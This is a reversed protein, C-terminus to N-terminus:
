RAPAHLTDIGESYAFISIRRPDVDKSSADPYERDSRTPSKRLSQRVLEQYQLCDTAIGDGGTKEQRGMPPAQRTRDYM